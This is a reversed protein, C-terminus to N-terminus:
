DLMTVMTSCSFMTYDSRPMVHWAAVETKRVELSSFFSLSTLSHSTHKASIFLHIFVYYIWETVTEHIFFIANASLNSHQELFVILRLTTSQEYSFLWNSIIMPLNWFIRTLRTLVHVRVFIDSFDNSTKAEASWRFHFGRVGASFTHKLVNTRSRKCKREFWVFDQTFSFSCMDIFLWYFLRSTQSNRIVHVHSIFLKDKSSWHRTLRIESLSLYGFGCGPMARKILWLHCNILHARPAFPLFSLARPKM